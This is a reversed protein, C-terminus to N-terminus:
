MRTVCMTDLCWGQHQGWWWWSCGDCCHVYCKIAGDWGFLVVSPVFWFMDLLLKYCNFYFNSILCPKRSAKLNLTVLNKNNRFQTIFLIYINMWYTLKKFIIMCYSWSVILSSHSVRFYFYEYIIMYLYFSNIVQIVPINQVPQLINQSPHFHQISHPVSWQSLCDWGWRTDRRSYRVGDCWLWRMGDCGDEAFYDCLRHISLYQQEVLCVCM